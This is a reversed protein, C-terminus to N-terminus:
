ETSQVRNCVGRITTCVSFFFFFFFFSFLLPDLTACDSLKRAFIKIQDSDWESERDLQCNSQVPSFLILYFPVTCRYMTYWETPDQWERIARLGSM